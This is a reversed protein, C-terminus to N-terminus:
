KQGKGKAVREAIKYINMYEQITEENSEVGTVGPHNNPCSLVEKIKTSLHIHDGTRFLTVNEPRFGVESAVVPVGLALAERVAISDGDSFTARVFVDAMKVVAPVSPLIHPIILSNALNLETVLTEVETRYKTDTSKYAIIIAGLKPFILKLESLARLLVDIGHVREMAGVSIILPSHQTIFNYVNEPITNQKEEYLPLYILQNSIFFVNKIDLGIVEDRLSPTVTTIVHPLQFIKRAILRSRGGVIHPLIDGAHLTLVMTKKTVRGMALIIGNGLLNAWNVAHCHIIENQSFGVRWALQFFFILRGIRKVIGSRPNGKKTNIIQCHIGRSKLDPVLHSLFTSTGGIYPPFPGVMCITIIKKGLYRSQIAKSNNAQGM